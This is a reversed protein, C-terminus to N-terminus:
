NLGLCTVMDSLIDGINGIPFGAKTREKMKQNYKTHVALVDDLNPFLREILDRSMHSSELLPRFFLRELVKLNRVHSRETQFFESLQRSFTKKFFCSREKEKKLDLFVVV